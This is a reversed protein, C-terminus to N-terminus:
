ILEELRNIKDWGRQLKQNSMDVILKLFKDDVIIKKNKIIPFEM